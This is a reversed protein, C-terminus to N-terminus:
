SRRESEQRAKLETVVQRVSNQRDADLTRFDLLVSHEGDHVQQLDGEELLEGQLYGSNPLEGLAQEAREMQRGSLGVFSVIVSSVMRKWPGPAKAEGGEDSEDAMTMFIDLSDLAVAAEKLHKRAEHKPPLQNVTKAYVDRVQDCLGKMAERVAFPDHPSREFREGFDALAYLPTACHSLIEAAKVSVARKRSDSQSKQGKSRKGGKQVKANAM